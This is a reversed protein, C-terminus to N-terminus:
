HNAGLTLNIMVACAGIATLVWAPYARTHNYKDRSFWFTKGFSLSLLALLGFLVDVAVPSNSVLFALGVGLILFLAAKGSVLGRGRRDATVHATTHFVVIVAVLVILAMAIAFESSRHHRMAQDLQFLALGATTAAVYTISKSIRVRFAPTSDDALEGVFARISLNM